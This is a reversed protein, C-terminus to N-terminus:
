KEFISNSVGKNIVYNSYTFSVTGETNSGKKKQAAKAANEGTITSPLSFEPVNLKVLVNIPMYYKNEFKLYNISINFTGSKKTINEIKVVVNKSEDVWLTALALDKTQDNPIVKIISTKAGNVIETGSYVLTNKPDNIIESVINGSGQKPLLNFGKIDVKSKNPEKYYIKGVQEPANLYSIDIKVKLDAQFDKVKDLETKLNAVIKNVDQANSEAFTLILIILAILNKM